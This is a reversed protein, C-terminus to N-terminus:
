DSGFVHPIVFALGTTWAYVTIPMFAVHLVPDSPHIESNKEFKIITDVESLNIVVSNEPVEEGDISLINGAITRKSMDFIKMRVISQDKRYVDVTEGIEIQAESEMPSVATASQVPITSCGSIFCISVILAALFSGYRM